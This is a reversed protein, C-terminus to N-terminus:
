RWAFLMRDLFPKYHTLGRDKAKLMEHEACQVNAFKSRLLKIRKLYNAISSDVSTHYEMCLKDCKPVLGADLLPGESGEIDMKVGDFKKKFLTGAFVNPVLRGDKYGHRGFITNRYFEGPKPSSFIMIAKAKSPTVVARHLVFGKRKGINKKLVEFCAEDPEYCTATAGRQACYLAFAGINAGLDLWHEGPQVDFNARTRRYVHKDIVEVLAREDSSEPRFYAKTPPDGYTGTSLKV